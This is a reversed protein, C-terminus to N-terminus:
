NVQIFHQKPLTMRLYWFLAMNEFDKTAIGHIQGETKQYYVFVYGTKEAEVGLRVEKNTGVYSRIKRSLSM